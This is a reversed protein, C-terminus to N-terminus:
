SLCYAQRYYAQRYYAPKESSTLLAILSIIPYIIAMANSAKGKPNTLWKV